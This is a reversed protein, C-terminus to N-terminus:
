RITRRVFRETRRRRELRLNPTLGWCRGDVDFFRLEMEPDTFTNYDPFDVHHTRKSEITGIHETYNLYPILKGPTRKSIMLIRVQTIAVDSSNM